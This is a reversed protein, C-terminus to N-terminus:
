VKAFRVLTTVYVRSLATGAHGTCGGGGWWGWGGRARLVVCVFTAQLIGVTTNASSVGGASTLVAGTTTTLTGASPASLVVFLWDRNDPYTAANGFPVLASADEQVAVALNAATPTAAPVVWGCVAAVPWAACTCLLQPKCVAPRLPLVIAQPPFAPPLSPPLSPESAAMAAM